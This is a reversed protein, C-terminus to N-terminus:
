LSPFDLFPCHFFTTHNTGRHDETDGTTLTKAAERKDEPLRVSSSLHNRGRSSQRRCPLMRRSTLCIRRALSSGCSHGVSYRPTTASPAACCLTAPKSRM